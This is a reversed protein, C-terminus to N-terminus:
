NFVHDMWWEEAEEAFIEILSAEKFKLRVDYSKGAEAGSPYLAAPFTIEPYFQLRNETEIRLTYKTSPLIMVYGYQSAPDPEPALADYVTLNIPTSPFGYPEYSRTIYTGSYAKGEHIDVIISTPQDIFEVKIIKGYQSVANESDAVLQLNIKTLLHKFQLTNVIPAGMNGWGLNTCMIDQSGDVNFYVSGDDVTRNVDAASYPYLAKLFYHIGTDDYFVKQTATGADNTFRIEGNTITTAGIGAPTGGGFYARRWTVKTLWETEGPQTYTPNATLFPIMVVGVSLQRPPLGGNPTVAGEGRSSYMAGGGMTANLDVEVGPKLAGDEEKGCGSMLACCAATM